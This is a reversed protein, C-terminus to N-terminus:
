AVKRSQVKAYAAWLKHHMECGEMQL